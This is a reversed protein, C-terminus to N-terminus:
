SLEAYSGIIIGCKNPDEARTYVLSGYVKISMLKSQMQLSAIDNDSSVHYLVIRLDGAVWMM